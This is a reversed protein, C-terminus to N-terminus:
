ELINNKIYSIILVSQYLAGIVEKAAYWENYELKDPVFVVDGCQLDQSNKLKLRQGTTAKIVFRKRSANKTIGGAIKIYDKANYETVFPYRGPLQVAGIVEVYPFYRQIYIVDKNTVLHNKKKITELSSELAGKETRIRAKVYAKEEISRNMEDKLLIRELERDPIKVIASNNIYIRSTDASSLFGGAANIIDNITTKGDVIPYTGPYNIEGIIEVINHPDKNYSYPVMIHDEPTAWWKKAQENTLYIAKSNFPSETRILSISDLKADPHYGGAINVADVINDGLSYEYKGPKQVGGQVTIFRTKYPIKIIDEQYVYPNFESVGTVKFKELDVKITDNGRFILINRKSLYKIDNEPEEELGLKRNYFDDVAIRSRMGFTESFSSEKNVKVSEKEKQNYESVIQDFLDSVRTMPTVIFYGANSFQGIVLVRFQRIVELEVNIKVNANWSKIQRKIDKILQTLKLDNCDIMGVSPILLQGTPSIILSHDYTENSSIINIHLQDGPGVIYNNPDVLKDIIFHDQNKDRKSINSNLNNSKTVQRQALRITSLDLNQSKSIGCICVALAFTKLIKNM